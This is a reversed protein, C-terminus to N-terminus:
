WYIFAAFFILNAYVSCLASLAVALVMISWIVGLLTLAMAITSAM